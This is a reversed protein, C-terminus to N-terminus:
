YRKSPTQKAQATVIATRISSSSSDTMHHLGQMVQIGGSDEEGDDDYGLMLMM